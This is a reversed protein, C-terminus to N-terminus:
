QDETQIYNTATTHGGTNKVKTTNQTTLDRMTPTALSSFNTITHNKLSPDVIKIPNRQSDRMSEQEMFSISATMPNDLLENTM